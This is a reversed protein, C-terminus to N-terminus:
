DFKFHANLDVFVISAVM